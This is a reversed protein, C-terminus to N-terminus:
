DLFSSPDNEIRLPLYLGNSSVRWDSRADYPTVCRQSLIAPVRCLRHFENELRCLLANLSGSESTCITDVRAFRRVLEHFFALSISPRSLLPSVIQTRGRLAARGCGGRACPKSNGPLTGGILRSNMPWTKISARSKSLWPQPDLM